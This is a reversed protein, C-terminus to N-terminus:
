EDVPEPLQSSTTPKVADTISTKVEYSGKVFAAVSLVALLAAASHFLRKLLHEKKGTEGIFEANFIRMTAWHTLYALCSALVSFVVGWAFFMLAGAAQPLIAQADASDKAISALFGLLAVAAGGNILLGSKIVANSTEIAKENFVQFEALREQRQSENV